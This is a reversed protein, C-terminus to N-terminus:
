WLEDNIKSLIEDLIEANQIYFGSYKFRASYVLIWFWTTILSESSIEETSIGRAWLDEKLLQVWWTIKQDTLRTTSTSVRQRLLAFNPTRWESVAHAQTNGSHVLFLPITQTDAPRRRLWRRVPHPIEIGKTIWEAIRARAEIQVCIFNIVQIWWEGLKQYVWYIDKPLGDKWDSEVLHRSNDRLMPVIDNIFKWWFIAEEWHTKTRAIAHLEDLCRTWNGSWFLWEDLTQPLFTHLQSLRMLIKVKQEPRKSKIEDWVKWAYQDFFTLADLQIKQSVSSSVVMSSQKRRGIAEIRSLILDLIEWARRIDVDTWKDEILIRIDKKPINLAWAIYALEAQVSFDIVAPSSSTLSMINNRYNTIRLINLELLQWFKYKM